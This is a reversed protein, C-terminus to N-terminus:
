KVLGKAIRINEREFVGKIGPLIEKLADKYSKHWCSLSSAAGRSRYWFAKAQWMNDKNWVTISSVSFSRIWYLLKGTTDRQEKFGFKRFWKVDPNINLSDLTSELETLFPDALGSVMESPIIKRILEEVDKHEKIFAVMKNAKIIAYLHGGISNWYSNTADKYTYPYNIVCVYPLVPRCYLKNVDKWVSNVVPSMTQRHKKSFRFRDCKRFLEIAEEPKLREKINKGIEFVAKATKNLFM